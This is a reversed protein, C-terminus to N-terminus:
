IVTPLHLGIRHANLLLQIFTQCFQKPSSVRIHSSCSTSIRAHMRMHHHCMKINVFQYFTSPQSIFKITYERRVYCYTPHYSYLVFSMCAKISLRARIMIPYIRTLIGKVTLISRTDREWEIKFFHILRSMIEGGHAVKGTKRLQM